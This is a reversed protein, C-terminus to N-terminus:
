AMPVVSMLITLLENPPPAESPACAAEFLLSVVDKVGRELLGLGLRFRVQPAIADTAVLARAQKLKAKPWRPLTEALVVAGPLPPAEALLALLREVGKVGWGLLREAAERVM